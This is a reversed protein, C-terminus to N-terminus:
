KKRNARIRAEMNQLIKRPNNVQSIEFAESLGTGGYCHVKGYGLLRQTRSQHVNIDPIFGLSHFYVNKKSQKLFGKIVVIKDPTFNYRVFIRSFEATAFGLLGAGILTTHIPKPINITSAYIALILLFAGCAYEVLFAKRTKWIKFVENVDHEVENENM